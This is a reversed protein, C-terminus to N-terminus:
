KREKVSLEVFIFYIKLLSKYINHYLEFANMFYLILILISFTLIIILYKRDFKTIKLEERILPSLNLSRFLMKDKNFIRRIIFTDYRNNRSNIFNLDDFTYDLYVNLKILIINKQLVYHFENKIYILEKFQLSFKM